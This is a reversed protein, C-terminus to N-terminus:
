GQRPCRAPRRPRPPPAVRYLPAPRADWRRAPWRDCVQPGGRAGRPDLDWVILAWGRERHLAGAIIAAMQRSHAFGVMSWHSPTGQRGAPREAWYQIEFAPLRRRNDGQYAALWAISEADHATTM